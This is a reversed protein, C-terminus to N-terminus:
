DFAINYFLSIASRTGAEAELSLKPSLIYRLQVVSGASELGQQYSLYLRSSIQKGLTVIRQQLSDQSTGVSFTDLGFASAIRSEVGAQASDSLLAAAAAQLAGMDGEGASDLGRGLVLWSLKESDPVSPESVLTIRPNLVTGRVSVGAEVEQGRRMALIDLAPNNLPGGFRLIGQEIALERGYASYTGKSVSLTGQARLTEGPEGIIRGKGVLVADLGRGRVTVGDGLGITIDIAAATKAATKKEQGVIVVDDSLEPKGQSGIDFFGSDVTFAGNISANRDRLAIRSDGSLVLRRDSRNLLAFREAVLALQADLRGGSFDIPGSLAVRGESGQFSLNRILLREGEFSSQLVGQRLDLGLDTWALRLADGTISGAFRPQGFTGGLSVDSQLRGDALLSPSIFPAIWRLSPVDIHANGTIPTDPAISLRHEGRGTAAGANVDIRGLQRGEAQLQLALRGNNASVSADLNNLGLTLPTGGLITVDGRERRIGINGSVTDAIRVDWEGGLLLDTKVQISPRYHLLEALKLSELRGRTVIGAADRSFLEVAIRGADTDLRFEDLRVQQASMELSAISALRANFRGTADFRGIGGEWRPDSALRSLGGQAHLNWSQDPERLAMEIAHAGTTGQASASFREAHLRSTQIGDVDLALSLPADPQPAFHLKASLSKLQETGRRLGRASLDATANDLMFPRERDIALEAKGRMSEIRVDGPLRANSANWQADIRPQRLTGRVTGDANLAGGFQSGLQALQPAQLSFRLQADGQSLLGVINLRNDGSALLFDPVQLTEGRLQVEGNGVLPQGALKSDSIRFSLAGELQPQRAGSLTFEGNLLLQPADPFAGLEELRFRSIKGQANFEQRGSLAIQASADIRGDGAQLQARDLRLETDALLGHASLEVRQKLQLPESLAITFEQRGAAHHLDVQGALRTARMRSDLRHLDLSETQLTMALVGDAYSGKGTIEGAPQKETGPRAVIREFDIRGAEQRFRILLSSLPLKQKDYTGPDANELRLEGPGNEAVSLDINLLTRPLKGDLSALDLERATLQVKGLMQESFPRVQANGRIRAQAVGFELAASLEALSGSLRIDGGAGIAREGIRADGRSSFSGELAYPKTASLTAQGNIQAALSGNELPPAAALERLRLRYASGDFNLGFVVPGFALPNAAERTIEGREIRVQEVQLEFPLGIREPLKAPEPTKDPKSVISLQEAHLSVIHLKKQLLASPLWGLRVDSLAIRRDPQELTLQEIRLPSILRGHVGQVQLLGGSLNDLASFAARAGSETGAFWALLVLLLVPIGAVLSLARHLRPRPPKAKPQPATESAM